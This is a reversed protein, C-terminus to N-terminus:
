TKSASRKHIWFMLGGATLLMVMTSPGPVKESALQEFAIQQLSTAVAGSIGLDRAVFEDSGLSRPDFETVNGFITLGELYYGYISAHMADLAWLDIQGAGIGNYPNTDALGSEFARNWAQGV